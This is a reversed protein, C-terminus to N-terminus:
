LQEVNVVTVYGVSAVLDCCRIADQECLAGIACGLSSYGCNPQGDGLDYWRIGLTGRRFDQRYIQIPLQPDGGRDEEM